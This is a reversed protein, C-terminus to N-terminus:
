VLGPSSLSATRPQDVQNRPPVKAPLRSVVTPGARPRKPGRSQRRWWRASAEARSNDSISSNKRFVDSVCGGRHFASERRRQAAARNDILSSGHALDARIVPRRQLEIEPDEDHQQRCRADDAHKRGKDLDLRLQIWEAAAVPVKGVKYGNSGHGDKEHAEDEPENRGAPQQRGNDHDPGKHEEDQPKDAQNDHRNLKPPRAARDLAGAVQLHKIPTGM